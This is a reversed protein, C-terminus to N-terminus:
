VDAWKYKAMRRAAADCHSCEPDYFYLFVRGQGLAYAKGEVAISEPAQIGSQHAANVGYCVTAFVAVAGLIVAASRKSQSPRSWLWAAVAFLLMVTDGLFFGPGVARKIFPFCKCEEGRLVNYYAGIWIMFFLLLGAALIAGWRRFRPVFLLVSCFTEITGLSIAGALSWAAPVQAQALRAGTGFPDTIKWTGAVLFMLGLLIAAFGGLLTKWGPLDRFRAGLGAGELPHAMSHDM